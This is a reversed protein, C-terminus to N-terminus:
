SPAAHMITFIIKIIICTTPPRIRHLHRRRNGPEASEIRSTTDDVCTTSSTVATTLASSSVAVKEVQGVKEKDADTCAGIGLALM